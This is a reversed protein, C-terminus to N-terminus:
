FTPLRVFGATEFHHDLSFAENIAMERMLAFSVADTLSFKQDEYRGLLDWAQDFHHCQPFVINVRPSAAIQAWWSNVKAPPWSGRLLIQTEAIVLAHTVLEGYYQLVGHFFTAAEEHLREDALTLAVWASTDIFLRRM